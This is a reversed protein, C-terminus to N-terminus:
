EICKELSTRSFLELVGVLSYYNINEAGKNGDPHPIELLASKNLVGATIDGFFVELSLGVGIFFSFMSQDEYVFLRKDEVRWEEVSNNAVAFKRSSALMVEITECLRLAEAFFHTKEM